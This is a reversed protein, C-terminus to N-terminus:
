NAINNIIKKRAAANDADNARKKPIVCEQVDETLQWAFDFIERKHDREFRDSYALILVDCQTAYKYIACKIFCLNDGASFIAVRKEKYLVAADFDDQDGFPTKAPPPNIGKAIEEFVAHLTTTKGTHPEGNLIIMKM